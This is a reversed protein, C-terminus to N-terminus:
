SFILVTVCVNVDQLLLLATLHVCALFFFLLVSALSRLASHTAHEQLVFLLLVTVCAVMDLKLELHHQKKAIPM